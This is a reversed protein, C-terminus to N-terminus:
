NILAYGGIVYAYKVNGWTSCFNCGYFAWNSQLIRWNPTDNIHIEYEIFYIGAYLLPAKLLLLNEAFLPFRVQILRVIAPCFTSMLPKTDQNNKVYEAMQEKLVEVGHDVEYVETFGLELLVSSVQTM